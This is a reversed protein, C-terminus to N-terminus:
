FSIKMGVFLRRGLTDYYGPNTSGAGDNALSYSTPDQCGTAEQQAGCVATLDTPYPYGASAGTIAPSTDLLNNIGGRISIKQSLDWNFSLDFIDYSGTKVATSPTYDLIVGAGGNAVRENNAIVAQQAAYAASWVSPLHRWRLSISKNNLLYSFTTFLRYSYAGANTGSLTPGLSGKWDTEVDFSAPSQKTKYYDLWTGKLSIGLGGPLRDFGLDSFQASWNVALDIGSTAISAQNAYALLITQAGGTGKNRSVNQCAPTAAQAAAEQANAVTVTGYCLYRAYDISYQQIADNLNIKWWDISAQLGALGASHFPSQIVAGLTWTDAKESQLNPNGKQLVWNYLSGSSGTADQSYYTAAGTAGMQAQCILYTSNAGAATQGSALHDPPEGAYTQVPDPAAGGAGYPANSRLGCPDGFNAGGITFIEQQNLFMEGLNPARTARNYGGRFRLWSNAKVNALAKYTWESDSYQYKSYRAGLELDFRKVVPVLLEGYYDMVDMSADMYATPYVGIVQDAFSATSQLIDPYFQASNKRYQMGAAAGLDGAKMTALTGNANLEVIDQQNQTRSQLTAEVAYQCDSSPVADGHFLTDYFGSTCHVPVTGFGPAAGDSNGQVTANYGYDPQTVLGRWRSLSNDGYALNYSTSEGHSVYFEGNWTDGLRFRLGSELQWVTNTDVTSRQPFSKTPFTEAIWPGLRGTGPVPQGVLTPNTTATSGSFPAGCGAGGQLCYTNAPSRSNLLVALQTPVPHQAGALGHGIFNPNAYASPNALVNSLVTPDTYDLSPDVPSDTTPNYPVDAEWGFSANTPLLLTRTQNQAWMLRSFFTLHDSFDYTGSAFASYREQPSSVLAQQNNWKLQQVVVGPQAVTNDYVNQLAYERGNVPGKYSNINNGALDFMTGDANFRLGSVFGPGLPLVGTTYNGSSDKPRNAFVASLANSNPVSFGTNYGNYGFVFLDGGVTPDSWSNVYFDRNKELAAKRDYHEAAFTINGRGDAFDTGLLASIKSEQGDGAASVSDQADFQAGQFDDRLIFNTVGSVADAGYVASAGGTMVEVRKILAAPIGNVDTVMLPNVPTLRHGDVLVLNRNPGFGRLSISAIGVSNVPTVQVDGNTTTPAAAPNFNPLQNLYSEINVGSQSELQQTNVTVLPSNSTYDRRQIRSGTVTIEELPKGKPTQAAASNDQQAQAPMAFAGAFGLISAISVALVRPRVTSSQQFM